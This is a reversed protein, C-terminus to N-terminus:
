DSQVLDLESLIWFLVLGYFSLVHEINCMWFRVVRHTVLVMVSSFPALNQMHSSTESHPLTVDPQHANEYTFGHSSSPFSYQNEQATEPQEPKLDEQQSISSHEYTGASM